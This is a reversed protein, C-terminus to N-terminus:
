RFLSILILIGVILLGTLGLYDIIVQKKKPLIYINKPDKKSVLIDISDGINPIKKNIYCLAEVYYDKTKYTYKYVPMYYEKKTEKSKILDIVFAQQKVEYTKRIIIKNITMVIITLFIIVVFSINLFFLVSDAFDIVGNRYLISTIVISAGIGMLLVSIKKKNLAYLFGVIILVLGTVFFLIKLEKQLFIISIAYLTLLIFIIADIIRGKKM